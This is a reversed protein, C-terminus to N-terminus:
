YRIEVAAPVDQLSCPLQGLWFFLWTRLEHEEAVSAPLVLDSGYEGVESRRNAEELVFMAAVTHM